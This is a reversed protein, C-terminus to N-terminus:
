TESFLIHTERHTKKYIYNLIIMNSSYSLSAIKLLNGFKMLSKLVSYRHLKRIDPM